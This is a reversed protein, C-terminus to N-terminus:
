QASEEHQAVPIFYPKLRNRIEKIYSDKDAESWFHPQHADAEAYYKLFVNRTCVPVYGGKRDLELIMQRKVEFVSNSLRSNDNSSLLAMNRISHDPTDDQNLMKLVNHSLANFKQGSFNGSKGVDIDAIAADIDSKTQEIEKRNLDSVVGDLALKHTSLWTKWQDARNLAEANQAHIHELSWKQGVHRSFPFRLGSQTTTEVNMLLLIELLKPYGRKREEYSLDELDAEKVNIHDRIRDVLFTEFESKRMRKKKDKAAHALEGFVVGSAVLFGIKNYFKPQEVWGLIQAHLTVVKKWFASYDQEIEGRLIDFTHYRPRKGIPKVKEDEDALTDLLLRIRIPYKELGESAARGAVFAWIDAHHLDHEISDWQAAIEHARDASRSRVESLLAAKILEADTLPIRGVNLRTFLATADTNVPAEYWIIRVSNFLYNHIKNAANNQDFKDGRGQFWEDICLHAQYLHFYDINKDYTVEDLANLYAQSGPRTEYHLSYPAGIGSGAHEKMYRLVLYLTTLRQQGDILEWEHDVLKKGQKHLKVVIPQLSYDQGQSGWIDDLLRTVDNKDWRYGRQYGPVFFYGRIEGITKHTLAYAHNTGPIAESTAQMTM